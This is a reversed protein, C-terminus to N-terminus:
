RSMRPGAIGPWSESTTIPNMLSEISRAHSGNAGRARPNGAVAIRTTDLHHGAQPNGMLRRGNAVSPRISIPKLVDAEAGGEFGRRSRRGYRALSSSSRSIAFHEDARHAREAGAKMRPM